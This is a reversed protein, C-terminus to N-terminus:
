DNRTTTVATAAVNSFVAAALLATAAALKKMTGEKSLELQFHQRNVPSM